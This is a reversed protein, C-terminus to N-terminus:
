DIWETTEGLLRAPGHIITATYCSGVDNDAGHGDGTHPYVVEEWWDALENDSTGDCHFTEGSHIDRHGYCSPSDLEVTHESHHGDSYDNEIKVIVSAM